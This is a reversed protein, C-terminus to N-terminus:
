LANGELIVKYFGLKSCLQIVDRLIAVAEVINLETINHKPTSLTALVDKISERVIIDIEKINISPQM